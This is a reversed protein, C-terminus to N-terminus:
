KGVAAVPDSNPSEGAAPGSNKTPDPYDFRDFAPRCERYVREIWAADKDFRNKKYRKMAAVEPAIVERAPGFDGLNLASYSEELVAMPDKELSEFQIEHLNGEPILKHDREYVDYGLNFTRIAEDEHGLLDSRGFEGERVMTRRLHLVSNCVNYPNRYIYLFKANPYLDLLYPIRLTHGPSKMVLPKKYKYTLKKILLEMSDKWLQIQEPPAGKFDYTHNTQEFSRTLATILYPSLLTMTAMAFEDEQPLDWGFRVNDMPRTKPLMFATMQPSYKGTFLFHTPFLMEYSNPFAVRPDKAMLNHLLTTGSRWFGIIFLPPDKVETQQVKRKFFLDEVFSMVSNHACMPPLLAIKLAKSWHMPPRQALLKCMPAFNMGHWLSIPGQSSSKPKNPKNSAM